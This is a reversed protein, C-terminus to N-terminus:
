FTQRSDIQQGIASALCAVNAAMEALAAQAVPLGTLRAVRYGARMMLYDARLLLREVRSLAGTQSLLFLLVRRDSELRREADSLAGDDLPREMAARVVEIGLGNAQAAVSVLLDRTRADRVLMCAYRVWYVLMGASCGIVLLSFVM